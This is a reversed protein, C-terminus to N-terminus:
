FGNEESLGKLRQIVPGGAKWGGRRDGDSEATLEQVGGPREGWQPLAQGRLGRRKGRGSRSM